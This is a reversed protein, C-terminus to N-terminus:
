GLPRGDPRCQSPGPRCHLGPPHQRAPYQGGRGAVTERDAESESLRLWNAPGPSEGGGRIRAQCLGEHALRVPRGTRTLNTLFPSRSQTPEIKARGMARDECQYTAMMTTTSSPTQLGSLHEQQSPSRQRRVSLYPLRTQHIWPTTRAVSWSHLFPALQLYGCCRTSPTRTPKPIPFQSITNRWNSYSTRNWSKFGPM